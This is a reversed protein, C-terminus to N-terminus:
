ARLRRRRQQRLWLRLLHTESLTRALRRRLREREDVFAHLAHMAQRALLRYADRELTLTVVDDVFAAERDTLREVDADSRAIATTATSSSM